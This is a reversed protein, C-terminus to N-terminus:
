PTVPAALGALGKAAMAAVIEDRHAHTWSAEVLANRADGDLANWMPMSDHLRANLASSDEGSEANPQWYSVFEKDDWRLVAVTVLSPAAEPQTQVHAVGIKVAEPPYGMSCYLQFAVMAEVIPDPDTLSTTLTDTM